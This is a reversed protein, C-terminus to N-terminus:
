VSQGVRGGRGVFNTGIKAFLPHQTTLAVFGLGNIETKYVPAAAKEELYSRM